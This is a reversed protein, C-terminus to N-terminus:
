YWGLSYFYHPCFFSHMYSCPWEPRFWKNEWLDDPASHQKLFLFYFFYLFFRSFLSLLSFVSDILPSVYSWLTAVRRQLGLLGTEYIFDTNDSCTLPHLLSIYAIVYSKYGPEMWMGCMVNAMCDHIVVRFCNLIRYQLFVNIRKYFLVLSSTIKLIKHM